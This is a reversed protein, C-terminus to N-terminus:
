SIIPGFSGHAASISYTEHVQGFNYGLNLSLDAASEALLSSAM